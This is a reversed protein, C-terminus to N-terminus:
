TSYMTGGPSRSADRSEVISLLARDVVGLLGEMYVFLADVHHSGGGVVFIDGVGVTQRYMMAFYLAGQGVEGALREYRECQLPEALFVAVKALGVEEAIAYLIVVVVLYILRRLAVFHKLLRIFLDGCPFTSPPLHQVAYELSIPSMTYGHILECRSLYLVEEIM